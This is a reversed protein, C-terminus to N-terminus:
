NEEQKILLTWYDTKKWVKLFDKEYIFKEKEKGSNVIVGQENYGIVVMFHNIKLFYIGLDVMVIIPFGLDIKEKLDKLNGNYQVVNLGKRQAYLLMDINLTGRATKSFIERSIEDPTVKIGWYNLVGALSSPGCQYNDQAFFPVKEIIKIQTNKSQPIEYFFTCSGILFSLLFIKLFSSRIKKSKSKFKM